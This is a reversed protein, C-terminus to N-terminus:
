PGIPPVARQSAMGAAARLPKWCPHAREIAEWLWGKGAPPEPQGPAEQVQRLVVDWERRIGQELKSRTPPLRRYLLAFFNRDIKQEPPPVLREDIKRLHAAFAQSENEDLADPFTVAWFRDDGKYASGVM